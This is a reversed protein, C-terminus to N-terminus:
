NRGQSTSLIFDNLLFISNKMDKKVNIEIQNIKNILDLILDYSWINLQQKVKDKEKWFIPPKYNNIARDLNSDTSLIKKLNLLRLTKNLFIRIIIISDENVFINENLINIVMKKNKALCYDVLESSNINDALNTIKLIVDTNIKKKFMLYNEIKNLEMKLNARDGSSRHILINQIEQSISIKYNRFFKNIIILLSKYDDKYFPTCVLNNDKEFQKRIKSKTELKEANLIFIIESNKYSLISKILNESKDTAKSIIILKKDSFFSKNKYHDLVLDNQKLVENEQFFFIDEKKFRKTFNENIFENKHGENEGYFLYYSYIFDKLEYFKKIM